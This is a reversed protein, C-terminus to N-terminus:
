QTSSRTIQRLIWLVGHESLWILLNMDSVAWLARYTLVSKFLYNFSVLVSISVSSEIKAFHYWFYSSVERLHTIPYIKAGSLPCFLM